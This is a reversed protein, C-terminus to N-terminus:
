NRENAELFRIIHEAIIETSNNRAIKKINETIESLMKDNLILRIIEKEFKENIYKDEVMVAAGKDAVSLANFYQHNEAVNPSPVLVAPKGIATVEAITTAGARALILDCASYAANMDEIFPFIRINETQYRLYKDIYYKGAQWILQIGASKIKSLNVFVANNISAAGLSGGVVLLTKKDPKLGFKSVAQEKSITGLDVRVPNGSVYLKNKNKFYKKSDEFSLHVEDSFRELIRTTLGPLSNQELLVVKAGTVSAAFIAPGAVYGGSGVAVDARFKMNIFLSQMVSIILKLPFLLNELSAKRSFGKIWISKFKFGYKPVITSEIKKRTGIFLIEAEPLLKRIQLAVAIAPFLHGGTGGGAFLIRKNKIKDNM